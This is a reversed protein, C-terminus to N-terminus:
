YRRYSDRALRFGHHTRRNQCVMGSPRSTCTFRGASRSSGYALVPGQHLTTDGACFFTGRGTKGITLGGGYDVDCTAPRAPTPWSHEAIDCRAVGPTIYCGINGSPSQFAGRAAGAASVPLAAIAAAILAPRLLELM